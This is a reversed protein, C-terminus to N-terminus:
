SALRNNSWDQPDGPEYAKPALTVGQKELEAVIDAIAAVRVLAPPVYDLQDQVNFDIM